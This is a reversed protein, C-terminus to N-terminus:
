GPKAGKATAQQRQIELRKMALYEEREIEHLQVPYREAGAHWERLRKELQEGHPLPYASLYAEVALFYRMCNREVLGRVNNIYVPTGDAKHDVVTFGVKNRGLTALYAEMAIRGGFGQNYAYSLHIFSTGPDLMVLELVIRYDHTGMPGKDARLEVQLYDATSAVMRYGFEVATASELPQDYKRATAVTLTATGATSWHCMKVDLHLMMIDCWHERGQLAQGAVAFTQPVVAYIDGRLDGANHMSEIHIPRNYANSTLSTQLAAHRARLAPGDQAQAGPVATLLCLLLWRVARRM